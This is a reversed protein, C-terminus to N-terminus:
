YIDLKAEAPFEDNGQFTIETDIVIREGTDLHLIISGLDKERERFRQFYRTEVKTITKGTLIQPDIM